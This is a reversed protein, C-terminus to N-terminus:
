PASDKGSIPADSSPRPSGSTGGLRRESRTGGPTMEGVLRQQRARRSAGSILRLVRLDRGSSARPARPGLLAWTYRPPGHPSLVGLSLEPLLHVTHGQPEEQAQEHTQSRRHVPLVSRRLSLTSGPSGPSRRPAPRLRNGTDGDDDRGGHPCQPDVGGRRRGRGRLLCGPPSPPDHRPRVASPPRGRSRPKGHRLRPLPRRQLQLGNRGRPRARGHGSAGPAPVPAPSPSRRDRGGRHDVRGPAPRSSPARGVSAGPVPRGPRRRDPPRADTRLQGPGARGGHLTAPVDVLRSATGIGGKFGHCRMGTGGGVNGEEVPGSAAAALADRVHDATVPFADIDNLWGDFTEAVVPLHFRHSVGREVAHAILADRVLGVAYTNTLGIPSGLLGAEDIWPIGTMEGNGNFLSLGACAHNTWIEGERPVIVTVGTRAVVPTDHIVTRHGVLVGPVGTIANAPGPPLRGIEVGLDRVRARGM